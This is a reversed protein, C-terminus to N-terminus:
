ITGTYNTSVPQWFIGIQGSFPPNDVLVWLIKVSRHSETEPVSQIKANSIRGLNIDDLRQVDRNEVLWTQEGFHCMWM